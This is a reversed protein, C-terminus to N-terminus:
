FYLKKEEDYKINYKKVTEERVNRIKNNLLYIYENKKKDVSNEGNEKKKELIQDKNKHYYRKAYELQKEYKDKINNKKNDDNDSKLSDIDSM